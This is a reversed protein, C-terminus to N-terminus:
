NRSPGLIWSRANVKDCANATMEAEAKASLLALDCDECLPLELRRSIAISESGLDHASTAEPETTPFRRGLQSVTKLGEDLRNM